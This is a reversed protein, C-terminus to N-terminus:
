LTIGENDRLKEVLEKVSNVVVSPKRKPPDKFFITTLKPTIDIKFDDVNRIEIPLKRAKMLNPLKIFRPQNLRLDATVLAPFSLSLKETGGEIERVAILDNDQISLSSISTAQPYGLLGALMQGTQGADDDIAKKGLLVLDPSEEEVLTRLLKAAALPQIDEETELLLARDAGFALAHRLIEINSQPGITVALIETVKGSEKLRVAEELANEDFPNVTTKLGDLDLTKGDSNINVQIHADVVRKIAVLTKM